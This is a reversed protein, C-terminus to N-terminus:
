RKSRGTRTSSSKSNSRAVGARKFSERTNVRDLDFPNGIYGQSNRRNLTTRSQTTRIPKFGASEEEKESETISNQREVEEVPETPHQHRTTEEEDEAEDQDTPTPHDESSDDDQHQKQMERMFKESQAAYKCRERIKAGYKYFLFPFPVCILALFAPVSSAWHIGLNNFMQTTFLPFAAGFLSRLVSNAALVSAAFITYGDILYNMIGLFILVMGFGFPAGAIISVSWHISPYNTWAFWFLGVPVAISGVMCLPLRAEPPAFGDYADSVKSYRKNDFIAYAVATLMGVAVGLFALGGIGPSWGRLQQYVIPFAGFCMYLTGYIIAMYISLLFVIPEQFLLVWPRSLSTKFVEGITTEGQDIDGKTKYVKGTMASLKKARARLIVPPYTEPIFLTGVIWLVGTFIAMVGEIWRWGVTEGVFGGVIPGLVPGMFPAAAFLSMALGREKASFMDAIVGGANTLPSSGIAGAFFRLIILTWINQSGAAGANFATLGLYTTTFLVQRGFLESLPAWLLPGIAFGLVFLSIGLTFIEQSCGFERIVEQAGGSYASSVFAVALTAIAVLATLSWKKTESYLMPNRPDNEIWVVVYPDEQTGSGEYNWNQVEPTIGAKDMVQRKHPISGPKGAPKGGEMDAM